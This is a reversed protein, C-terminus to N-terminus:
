RPMTSPPPDTPAPEPRDLLSLDRAVDCGATFGARCARQMARRAAEDERPGGDGRHLAMGLKFCCSGVEARDGCGRAYLGRGRVVDPAGAQDTMWATGAADCREFAGLECARTEADRAGAYDRAGGRGGFLLLAYRGCAVGDGGQCSRSLLPRAETEAATTGDVDMLWAGVHTCARAEGGQCRGREANLWEVGRARLPECEKEVLLRLPSAADPHPGVTGHCREGSANDGAFRYRGSGDRELTPALVDSDALARRVADRDRECGSTLGACLALLPAVAARVTPPLRLM